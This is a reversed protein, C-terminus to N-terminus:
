AGVAPTVNLVAVIANVLNQVYATGATIKLTALQAIVTSSVIQLVDASKQAGSLGAPIAAAKAEVEAVANQIVNVVNVAIGTGASIAASEGPFFITALAALSPFYKASAVLGKDVDRAVVELVSLFKKGDVELTAEFSKVSMIHSTEKVTTSVQQPKLPVPISSHDHHFLAGAFTM